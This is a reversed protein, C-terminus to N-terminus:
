APLMDVDCFDFSDYDGETFFKFGANPNDDEETHEGITLLLTEEPTVAECVEGMVHESPRKLEPLEERARALEQKLAFNEERLGNNEGRLGRNKEKLGKTEERLDGIETMANELIKWRVEKHRKRRGTGDGPPPTPDLQPITSEGSDIMQELMHFKHNVNERYKKEVVNHNKRRAAAKAAKTAAQTVEPDSKRRTPNIDAPPPSVFPEPSHVAFQYHQDIPGYHFNVPWQPMQVMALDAPNGPKGDVDRPPTPPLRYGTGANLNSAGFNMDQHYHPGYGASHFDVQDLDAVQPANFSPGAVGAGISLDNQNINMRAVRRWDEEQAAAISKMWAERRKQVDPDARIRTM